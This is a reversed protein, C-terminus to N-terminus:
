SGNAPLLPDAEAAGMGGDGAGDGGAQEIQRAAPLSSSSLRHMSHQPAATCVLQKALSAVMRPHPAEPRTPPPARRRRETVVEM